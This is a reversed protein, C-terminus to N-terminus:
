GSYGDNGVVSYYVSAKVFGVAAASTFGISVAKGPLVLVGGQLSLDILGFDVTPWITDVIKPSGTLTIAGEYAVVNSTVSSGSSLNVPTVSTGGSAYESDSELTFYSGVAPAVGVSQLVIRSLVITSNENDNEILAVSNPGVALTASNALVSFTKQYDKAILHIFPINFSATLMRNDDDVGVLRGNGTGSELIM